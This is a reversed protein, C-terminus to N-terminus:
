GAPPLDACVRLVGSHQQALEWCPSQVCHTTIIVNTNESSITPTREDGAVWPEVKTYTLPPRIQKRCVWARGQDRIHLSNDPWPKCRLSVWGADLLLLLEAQRAKDEIRSWCCDLSGQQSDETVPKMEAGGVDGWWSEILDVNMLSSWKRARECKGCKWWSIHRSSLLHDAAIQGSEEWHFQWAEMSLASNRNWWMGSSLSLLAPIFTYCWANCCREPYFVMIYAFKTRRPRPGFLWGDTQFSCFMQSANCWDAESHICFDLLMVNTVSRYLKKCLYKWTVKHEKREEICLKSWLHRIFVRWSVRHSQGHPTSNATRM